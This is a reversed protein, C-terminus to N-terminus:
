LARRIWSPSVADETAGSKSILLKGEAWRAAQQSGVKAYVIMFPDLDKTLENYWNGM